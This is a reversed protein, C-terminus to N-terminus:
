ASRFRRLVSGVEIVEPAVRQEMEGGPNVSRIGLLHIVLRRQVPVARLLTVLDLEGPSVLFPKAQPHLLELLYAMGFSVCCLIAWVHDREWYWLYAFILAPLYPALSQVHKGVDAPRFTDLM